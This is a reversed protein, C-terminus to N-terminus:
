DRGEGRKACERCTGTLQVHRRRVTGWAAAAPPLREGDFEPWVLDSIKRCRRCVMHHHAGANGDFRTVSDLDILKAILANGELVSLTRYVTDLSITPLRKRVRRHIQEASPHDVARALERFVELRQHTAKIGARRCLDVFRDHPASRGSSKMRPMEIPAKGSM